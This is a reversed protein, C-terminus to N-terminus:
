PTPRSVTRLRGIHHDANMEESHNL